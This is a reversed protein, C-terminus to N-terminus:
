RGCDSGGGGQERGLPGEAGPGRPASWPIFLAFHVTALQLGMSLLRQGERM